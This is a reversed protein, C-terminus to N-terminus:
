RGTRGQHKALQFVREFYSNPVNYGATGIVIVHFDHRKYLDVEDIPYFWEDDNLQQGYAWTKAELYNGAILCIM